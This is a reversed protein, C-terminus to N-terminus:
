LLVWDVGTKRCTKKDTCSTIFAENMSVAQIISNHDCIEELTAIECGEPDIPSYMTTAVDNM